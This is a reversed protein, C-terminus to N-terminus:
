PQPAVETKRRRMRSGGGGKLYYPPPKRQRKEQGKRITRLIPRREKGKGQCKKDAEYDRRESTHSHTKLLRMKAEHELEHFRVEMIQGYKQMYPENFHALTITNGQIVKFHRYNGPCVYQFRTQIVQSPYRLRSVLPKLAFCSGLNLRGNHWFSYLQWRRYAVSVALFLSFTSM